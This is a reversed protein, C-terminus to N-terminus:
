RPMSGLIALLTGLVWASFAVYGAIIATIPAKKPQGAEFQEMTLSNALVANMGAGANLLMRRTSHFSVSNIVAVAILGAFFCALAWWATRQDRVNQSTGMFSLLAVAGGANTLLLFKLAQNTAMIYLEILQKIRAQYSTHLSRQDELTLEEFKM